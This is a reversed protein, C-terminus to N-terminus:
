SACRLTGLIAEASTGRELRVDRAAQRRAARPLEAEAARRGRDDRQLPGARGPPAEDRVEVVPWRPLEPWVLTCFCGFQTELRYHRPGHAAWRARGATLSDLLRRRVSDPFASRAPSLLVADASFQTISDRRQAQAHARSPDGLLSLGLAVVLALPRSARENASHQLKRM